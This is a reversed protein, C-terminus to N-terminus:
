KSKCKQLAHISERQDFRNFFLDLDNLWKQDGTPQQNPGKYGSMAKLVPRFRKQVQCLARDRSPMGTDEEEARPDRWTYYCRRTGSRQMRVRHHFTCYVTSLFVRHLQSGCHAVTPLHFLLQQLLSGSTRRRLVYAAFCDLLPRNQHSCVNVQFIILIKLTHNSMHVSSTM